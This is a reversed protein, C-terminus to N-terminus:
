CGYFEKTAEIVDRLLKIDINAKRMARSLRNVSKAYKEWHEALRAAEERNRQKLVEPSPINNNLL